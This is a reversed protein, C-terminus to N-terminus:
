KAETADKIGQEFMTKPASLLVYLTPHTGSMNNLEPMGIKSVFIVCPGKM